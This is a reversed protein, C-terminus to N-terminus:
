FFFYNWKHPGFIFTRKNCKDYQNGLKRNTEISIRDCNSRPGLIVIVVHAWIWRIVLYYIHATFCIFIAKLLFIRNGMWIWHRGVCSNDRIFVVKSKKEKKNMMMVLWWIRYCEIIISEVIYTALSINQKIRNKKRYENKCLHKPTSKILMACIAYNINAHAKFM